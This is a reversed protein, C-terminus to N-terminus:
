AGILSHDDLVPAHLTEGAAGRQTPLTLRVEVWGAVADARTDVRGGVNWVLSAAEATFSDAEGASQEGASRGRYQPMWRARLDLANPSRVPCRVTLAVREGDAAVILTAAGAEEASPHRTFQILEAALLAFGDMPLALGRDPLAGAVLVQSGAPAALSVWTRLVRLWEDARVGRGPEAAQALVGGKPVKLKLGYKQTARYAWLSQRMRREDTVDRLRVVTHRGAASPVAFRDARFWIGTAEGAEPRILYVPGDAAPDGVVAHGVAAASWFHPKGKGLGLDDRAKGNAYAVRGDGALAAYGDDAHEVVWEFLHASLADTVVATPPESM